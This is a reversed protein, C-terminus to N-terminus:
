YVEIVLCITKKASQCKSPEGTSPCLSLKDVVHKTESRKSCEIGLVGENRIEYEGVKRKGLANINLNMINEEANRCFTVPICDGNNVGCIDNNLNPGEFSTVEEYGVTEDMGEEVDGKLAILILDTIPTSVPTHVMDADINCDFSHAFLAENVGEYEEDSDSLVMRRRKRTAVPVNGVVSACDILSVDKMCIRGYSDINVAEELFKFEYPIGDAWYDTGAFINRDDCENRNYEHSELEEAGEKEHYELNLYQEQPFSAAIPSANMVSVKSEEGNESNQEDEVDVVDVFKGNQLIKREGIKQYIEGVITLSDDDNLKPFRCSITSVVRTEGKLYSRTMPKVLSPCGNELKSKLDEVREMVPNVRTPSEEIVTPDEKYVPTALKTISSSRREGIIAVPAPKGEYVGTPLKARTKEEYVPTLLEAIRSSRRPELATM